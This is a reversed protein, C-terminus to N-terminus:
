VISRCEELMALADGYKGQDMLCLAMKGLTSLYDPHEKGLVRERIAQCQLYKALADDHKGQELLCGAVSAVASACDPHNAGLM